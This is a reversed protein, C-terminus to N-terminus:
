QRSPRLVMKWQNDVTVELESLGLRHGAQRLSQGNTGTRDKRICKGLEQLWDTLVFKIGEKSFGWGESTREKEDTM